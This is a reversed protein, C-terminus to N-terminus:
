TKRFGFWTMVGSSDANSDKSSTKRTREQSNRHTYQNIKISYELLKGQIRSVAETNQPCQLLGHKTEHYFICVHLVIKPDDHWTRMHSMSTAEPKHEMIVLIVPKDGTVNRMAAEVDTGIRSIIPCFVITVQYDQDSPDEVNHCVLDLNPSNSRVKELLQLDANFTKGTVVMRCKVQSQQQFGSSQSPSRTLSVDGQPYFTNAKYSDVPGCTPSTSTRQFSETQYNPPHSAQFGGHPEPAPPNASIGELLDIHADLFTRVSNLQTKTDKLVKLYDALVGNETLAARLSQEPVFSRM